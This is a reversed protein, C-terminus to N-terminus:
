ASCSATPGGGCGRARCISGIINHFIIKDLKWRRSFLGLRNSNETPFFSDGVTRLLISICGLFCVKETHCLCSKLISSFYCLGHFIPTSLDYLQRVGNQIKPPVWKTSIPDGNTSETVWKTTKSCGNTSETVWKTTKSCGSPFNSLKSHCFRPCRGSHQNKFQSSVVFNTIKLDLFLM